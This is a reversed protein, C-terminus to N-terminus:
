ESAMLEDVYPSLLTAYDYIADTNSLSMLELMANFDDRDARYCWESINVKYESNPLMSLLMDRYVASASTDMRVIRIMKEITKKM